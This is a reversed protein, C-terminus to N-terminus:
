IRYRKARPRWPRAKRQGPPDNLRVLLPLMLKTAREEKSVEEDVNVVEEALHNAEVM